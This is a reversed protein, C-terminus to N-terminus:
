KQLVIKTGPELEGDDLLSRLFLFPKIYGVQAMLAKSDPDKEAYILSEESDEYALAQKKLKVKKPNIVGALYIRDKRDLIVADYGLVRSLARHMRGKGFSARHSGLDEIDQNVDRHYVKCKRGGCQFLGGINLSNMVLWVPDAYSALTLTSNIGGFLYWEEMQRFRVISQTNLVRTNLNIFNPGKKSVSRVFAFRYRDIISRDGTTLFAQIWARPNLSQAFVNTTAVANVLLIAAFVTASDSSRILRAVM